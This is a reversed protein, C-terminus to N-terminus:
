RKKNKRKKSLLKVDKLLKAYLYNSIILGIIYVIIFYIHFYGKNVKYMIFIYVLVIDIILFTYIIFQFFYNRKNLLYKNLKILLHSLVGYIFSVFFTLLQLASDM